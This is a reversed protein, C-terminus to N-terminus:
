SSNNAQINGQRQHAMWAIVLSLLFLVGTWILQQADFLDMPNFQQLNATFQAFDISAGFSVFAFMPPLIGIFTGVAYPVFPVRLLGCGYNVIDFPLYLLRLILVTALAQQELTERWRSLHKAQRQGLGDEAFYRGIAYALAASLNEGVITYLVGLWFGFVSGSLITLLIAPFFVIPRIAYVLIYVLPALPNTSVFQYLLMLIDASGYGASRGWLYGAGLLGLWIGVGILKYLRQRSLM